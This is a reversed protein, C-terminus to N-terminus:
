LNVRTFAISEDRNYQPRAFKPRAAILPAASPPLPAGSGVLLLQVPNPQGITLQLIAGDCSRGFCDISYKGDENPDIPRVFEQTGASRIMADEPAILEIREYGNAILRFTVTREGGSV